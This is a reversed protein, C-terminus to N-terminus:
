LAQAKSLLLSVLHIENPFLPYGGGVGAILLPSPSRARGSCAGTMQSALGTHREVVNFVAHRRRQRM